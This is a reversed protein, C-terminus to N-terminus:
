KAPPLPPEPPSLATSRTDPIPPAAAQHSKRLTLYDAIASRVSNYLANMSEVKDFRKYERGDASFVIARLNKSTQPWGLQTFIRGDFDPIVHCYARPNSHNGNKLYYPKLENAEGDLSSRMRGIAIGPAWNALSGRLDVAVILQFDPRGQFPYMAIGAQRAEQQSDESTGILVTVIGNRNIVINRKDADVARFRKVSAATAPAFLGCALLCLAVLAAGRADFSRSKRWSMDM